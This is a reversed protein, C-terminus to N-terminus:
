FIDSNHFYKSEGGGGKIKIFVKHQIKDLLQQKEALERAKRENVRQSHQAVKARYKEV